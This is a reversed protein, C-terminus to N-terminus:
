HDQLHECPHCELELTSHNIAFQESLMGKLREGVVQAEHLTAAGEVEIHASLAVVDPAIAWIHLHHVAVVSTDGALSAELAEPDLHRPTAELLVHVTDFILKGAAFAVLATIVLSAAADAWMWGGVGIAVGAILAAVSGGADSLTHLAAARVNMNRGPARHLLWTAVLNALLGLVAVVILGGAEVHNDEGIRRIAEIVIWFSVGLLAVGNLLAALVEARRFGFSHRLSPPRNALRQAGLAIALAVADSFLHAADAALALSGFMASGIVEVVVFSATIACAIGLARQQQAADSAHEHRHRGTM